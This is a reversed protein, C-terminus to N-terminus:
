SQTAHLEWVDPVPIAYPVLEYGGLAQRDVSYTSPQFETPINVTEEAIVSQIEAWLQEGKPSDDTVTKLQAELEALKENEYGCVNSQSNGIYNALKGRGYAAQPIAGIPAQHSVMFDQVF